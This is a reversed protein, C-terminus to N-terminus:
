NELGTLEGVPQIRDDDIRKAQFALSRLQRLAALPELSEYTSTRWIGDGFDLERLSTGAPLDHLQTFDTFRLGTLMPNRSLDWLRTARQNWFIQVLRLDPLDELPSLDAIRPCKDLYLSLFQRGYTSIVKEFSAQDLRDVWLAVADPRGGIVALQQETIRGHGDEPLVLRLM